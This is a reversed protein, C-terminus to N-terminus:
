PGVVLRVVGGDDSHPKAGLAPKGRAPSQRVIESGSGTVTPRFGQVALLHVADAPSLGVVRPVLPRLLTGPGPGNLYGFSLRRISLDEGVIRRGAVPSALPVTLHPTALSTACIVGGRPVIVTGEVQVTITTGNERLVAHAKGGCLPPRAQVVLSRDARGAELLVWPYPAVHSPVLVSRATGAVHLRTGTVRGHHGGSSALAAYGIGMVVGTALIGGVVVKRKREM